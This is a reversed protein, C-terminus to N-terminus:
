RRYRQQETQIADLPIDFTDTPLAAIRTAELAIGLTAPRQAADALTRDYFGGGYGLRFGRADFGVCPILLADPTIDVAPADADNEPIGIGYRGIRMPTDPRWGAFRLPSALQVETPLAARRTPDDALWHSLTARLDPEGALPWYFGVCRFGGADLWARVGAAIAHETAPDSTLAAQRLPLLRKRLAIKELRIPDIADPVPSPNVSPPPSNASM